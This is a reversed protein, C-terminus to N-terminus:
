FVTQGLFFTFDGPNVTMLISMATLVPIALMATVFTRTSAMEASVMSAPTKLVNMSTLRACSDMTGLCANVRTAM